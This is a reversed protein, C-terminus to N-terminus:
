GPNVPKLEGSPEKEQRDNLHIHGFGIESDQIAKTRRQDIATIIDRESHAILLDSIPLPRVDDKSHIIVFTADATIAITKGDITLNIELYPAFSFSSFRVISSWGTGKSHKYSTILEIYAALNNREHADERLAMLRDGDHYERGLAPERNTAMQM